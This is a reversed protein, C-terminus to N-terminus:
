NGKGLLLNPYTIQIMQNITVIPDQELMGRIFMTALANPKQVPLTTAHKPALERVGGVEAAFVPNIHYVPTNIGVARAAELVEGFRGAPTNEYGDSLVFISEVNEQLLKLLQPALETHGCPKIETNTNAQTAHAEFFTSSTHSLMDRIALISALPRLPQTQSGRMSESGDLLIGISKFKTPFSKAAQIAKHKLATLIENSFGRKFGYLYLEVPNYDMPNFEITVNAKEATAQLNKKQTRTLSDKKLEIVKSSPVCKHYTSRIGELVEIPLPKGAALNEKAEGFAKFLPSNWKKNVRLVFAVSELATKKKHAYKSLNNTIISQDQATWDVKKLIAKIIGTKSEGWAHTLSEVMKSRYKISWLELQESGLITRLILKRTRANNAKTIGQAKEGHRFAAFIKFMRQAPLEQVLQYIAKAELENTLIGNYGNRPNSLLNKTALQSSRDTTGPLISFLTYLDRDLNLMARHASLEAKQQEERTNYHTARGFSTTTTDLFNAIVEKVLKTPKGQPRSWTPIHVDTAIQNEM